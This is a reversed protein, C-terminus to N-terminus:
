PPRLSDKLRKSAQSRARAAATVALRAWTVITDAFERVNDHPSNIMTFLLTLKVFLRQIHLPVQPGM